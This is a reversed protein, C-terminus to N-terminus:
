DGLKGLTGCWSWTKASSLAPLCKPTLMFNFWFKFGPQNMSLQQLLTLHCHSIEKNLPVLLFLKWFIPQSDQPNLRSVEAVTSPAWPKAAPFEQQVCWQAPQDQFFCAYPYFMNMNRNFHTLVSNFEPLGKKKSHQLIIWPSTIYIDRATKVLFTEDAMPARRGMALIPAPNIGIAALHFGRQRGTPSASSNSVHASIYFKM